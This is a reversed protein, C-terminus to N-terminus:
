PELVRAVHKHKRQKPQMRKTHPGSRFTPMHQWLEMPKYMAQLFNYIGTYRESRM